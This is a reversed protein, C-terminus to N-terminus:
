LSSTVVRTVVQVRNIVSFGSKNSIPPSPNEFYPPATLV